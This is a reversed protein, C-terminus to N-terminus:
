ARQLGKQSQQITRRAQEIVVSSLTNEEVAKQFMKLSVLVERHAELASFMPVLSGSLRALEKWRGQRLFLAALDLSVLCAILPTEYRAFAERAELLAAEAQDFQGRGRLILGELWRLRVRNYGRGHEASLKRATPLLELAQSYRGTEAYCTVLNHYLSLRLYGDTGEDVTELAKELFEISQEAEGEEYRVTARAVLLSTQMDAGAEAYLREAEDILEMAQDFHGQSRVLPAKFLAVDARISPDDGGLDLFRDATAFAQEAGRLDGALTRASGLWAWGQAKLIALEERDLATTDIIDLSKLALDAVQVGRRPDDRGVLRSRMRLLHFLAPSTVRLDRLLSSQERWSHRQLITWVEDQQEEDLDDGHLLIELQTKTEWVDAEDEAGALSAGSEVHSVAASRSPLGHAIGGNPSDPEPYMQRLQTILDNAEEVALEGALARRLKETRATLSEELVPAAETETRQRAKKRYATPRQGSWRSFARSFVQISSYGLLEAIQWIKLNSEGLLRCATEMRRDEIYGHPPRGVASHFQIPVSNDRVGCNRKLQNVDLSPDFLNEEIYALLPKLRQPAGAQDRRIRELSETAATELIRQM